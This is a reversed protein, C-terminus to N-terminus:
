LNELEKQIEEADLESRKGSNQISELLKIKTAFRDRVDQPTNPNNALQFLM